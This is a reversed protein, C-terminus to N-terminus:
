NDFCYGHFLFSLISVRDFQDPPLANPGIISMFRVQRYLKDDFIRSKDITQVKEWLERQFESYRQQALIQFNWYFYPM